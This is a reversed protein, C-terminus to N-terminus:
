SHRVTIWKSRGTQRLANRFSWGLIVLLALFLIISMIPISEVITALFQKWFEAVAGINSFGLGVYHYFGSQSLQQSLGTLAPIIGILSVTALASYGWFKIQHNRKERIEITRCIDAALDCRPPCSNCLSNFLGELHHSMSNTYSQSSTKTCNM